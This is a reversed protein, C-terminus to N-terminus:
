NSMRHLINLMSGDESVYSILSLSDKFFFVVYCETNVNTVSNDVGTIFTLISCNECQITDFYSYRGCRMNGYYEKLSITQIPNPEDLHKAGLINRITLPKENKKTITFAVYLTEVILGM